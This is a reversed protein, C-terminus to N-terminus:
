TEIRRLSGPLVPMKSYLTKAIDGVGRVKEFDGDWNKLPEGYADEIADVVKKMRSSVKKSANGHLIVALYLEEGKEILISKEGFEIKRLTFSTIDKFSDKVFDQIAVFMGGLVQDDMGPKLRRTNHSILRGDRYIVFTEDVAIRSEHMFYGATGFAALVAMLLLYPWAQVMFHLKVDLTYSPTRVSHGAMDSVDAYLEVTGEKLSIDLMRYFNGDSARAVSFTSFASEGQFRVYLVIGSANVNEDWVRLSINTRDGGFVSTRSSSIYALPAIDDITIAINPKIAINGGLDYAVVDLLYRGDPWNETDISYLESFNRYYISNIVYVIFGLPTSGPTIRFFISTGSEVVSGSKPEILDITPPIVSLVTGRAFSFDDDDTFVVTVNYDRGIAFTHTVPTTPLGYLTTSTGDGFDWYTKVVDPYKAALESANFTVTSTNPDDRTVSIGYYFGVEGYGSNRVEVFISQIRSSGDSDTVRVKATYNGVDTYAHISTNTTTSVDAVFEGGPADFDWEYSSVPDLSKVVVGFTVGFFEEYYNVWRAIPLTTLEVFPPIERVHFSTSFTSINGDEEMVRLTMAYDGDDLDSFPYAAMQTDNLDFYRNSNDPYKLTWNWVTVGDFSSTHSIFEFEVGEQPDQTSLTFNASPGADFIGIYCTSINSETDADTVRVAIRYTKPFSESSFVHTAASSNPAFPDPTFYDPVYSFDWEYSVIPDVPGGHWEDVMVTFTVVQGEDASVPAVIRLEPPSSRVEVISSKNRVTGDMDKIELTVTHNGNQMEASLNHDEGSIVGDIKWTINAFGDFSYTNDTFNVKQGERPNLPTWRFDVRPYADYVNVWTQDTSTLNAPDRVTVNITYNRMTDTGISTYTHVPRPYRGVLLSSGDGFDWTYNMFPIESTGTTVTGNLQFLDGERAEYPGGAHVVPPINIMSWASVTHSGVENVLLDGRHDRTGDGIVAYNPGAGTVFTMSPTSPLTGGEQRYLFLLDASNFIAVVDAYGRDTADLVSVFKPMEPFTLTGYPHPSSRFMTQDFLYISPDSQRMAAIDTKGDGTVDGSWVSTFDSGVSHSLTVSESAPGFPVSRSQFLITIKRISHTYAVDTLGDSNFDGAVVSWIGAGLTPAFEYPAGFPEAQGSNNFFDLRGDDTAILFDQLSDSNFDGLAVDMIGGNCTLQTASSPFPNGGFTITVTQGGSMTTLVDSFGDNNFDEVLIHSPLYGLSIPPQVVNNFSLQYDFSGADHNMLVLDEVDDGNLDGVAIMSSADFPDTWTTANSNSFTPFRAPYIAIHSGSWDARASAVALDNQADGDLDGILSSRPVGSVPLEFDPVSPWVETGPGYFGFSVNDSESTIALDNWLDGNLDGAVIKSPTNQLPVTLDPGELRLSGASQFFFCLASPSETIVALDVLSDGNFNGAILDIPAGTINLTADAQTSVPFLAYPKHYLLINSDYCNAVALEDLGDGDFDGSAVANTGNGGILLSRTTASPFFQMVQVVGQASPDTGSCAVAVDPYADGTFNGLLFDSANEIITQREMTRDYKTPSTRNFVEIPDMDLASNAKELVVVQLQGAAFLDVAAVGVPNSMLSINFSEYTPFEGDAQRYFVSIIKSGSVAVLLDTRGDGDLDALTADTAGGSLMLARSVLPYETVNLSTNLQSPFALVSEAQAHQSPQAVEIGRVAHDSVGYPTLPLLFSAAIAIVLAAKVSRRLNTGDLPSVTTKSKYSTKPIFRDM